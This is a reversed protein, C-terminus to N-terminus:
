GTGYCVVKELLNARTLNGPDLYILVAQRGPDLTGFHPAVGLADAGNKTAMALIDGPRLGPFHHRVFAMEDFLSLSDCSALSDTGLAPALNKELMGCIDPLRGHLHHNSRPCLCIRTRTQALIALDRDTVQLLHVGLTDPGLVKLDDLYAVPTKDGVPWTRADIGRAALFDHWQGARGAIFATEVDSEAAHISFPLGVARARHKLSVLLDPATTHPAHGAASFSLPFGKELVLSPDGTGLFEQFWVGATGASSLLDRTLGLTSVEGVAGTGLDPLLDAAQRAAATLGPTGISDRERLLAAVWPAFGKGLPLRGKLASLELHLHANVLAPMLIGPGCDTVPERAAGAATVERIKGDAALVGANELITWPDKVVWGARFVRPDGTHRIFRIGSEPAPMQCSPILHTM